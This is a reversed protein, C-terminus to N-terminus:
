IPNFLHAMNLQCHGAISTLKDNSDTHIVPM